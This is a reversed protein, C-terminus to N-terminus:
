AAKLISLARELNKVFFPCVKYAKQTCFEDYHFESLCYSDNKKHLVDCDPLGSGKRLLPCKM